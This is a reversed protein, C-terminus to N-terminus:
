KNKNEKEKQTNMEARGKRSFFASVQWSIFFIILLLYPSSLNPDHRTFQFYLFFSGFLFPQFVPGLLFGIMIHTNFQRRKLYIWCAGLVGLLILVIGLALPGNNNFSFYETKYLLFLFLITMGLSFCIVWMFKRNM